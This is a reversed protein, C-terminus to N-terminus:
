QLFYLKCRYIGSCSIDTADTFEVAPFIVNYRNIRSCFINNTGTFEVAPLILQM